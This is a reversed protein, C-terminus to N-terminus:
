SGESNATAPIVSVTSASTNELVQYMDALEDESLDRWEGTPIASLAINMIRVRELEHVKFGFHKCMRRIQRNLGQVLTINFVLPSEQFVKCRKTIVGLMPVGASMGLMFDDTIDKNVTVRYEKEHHNGGNLIQNVLSSKNTLFILGQSDKDLRGIPFIRSRHGIFDVINRKDTPAATCVVGVPKNFALFIVEDAALPEIVVGQLTITDSLTVHDGFIALKGNILVDGQAVHLDAAKRSCIGSECIYKNIRILSDSSIPKEAHRSLHIALMM